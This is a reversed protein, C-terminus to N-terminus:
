EVLKVAYCGFDEDTNTSWNGPGINLNDLFRGQAFYTEYYNNPTVSELYFAVFGVIKMSRGERTNRPLMSEVLPILMVRPDGVKAKKYDTNPDNTVREKFAKVSDPGGSSPAYYQMDNGVTFGEKYGGKLYNLYDRYSQAANIKVNMYDLEHLEPNTWDGRVRMTFRSTYDFQTTRPLVFPVIWPVTGSPAVEAKAHAAVISSNLGLVPALMLPVKRSIDVTISGNNLGATSSSVSIVMESDTVGNKKAVNKAVTLAQNADKPLQGGGGYAAADAASSLQTRTVYLMGMDIALAGFGLLVPLAIATLVLTSGRKNRWYCKLLDDRERRKIVM